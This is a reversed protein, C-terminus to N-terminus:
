RSALITGGILFLMLFPFAATQAYVVTQRLSPYHNAIWSDKLVSLGIMVSVAAYTIMFIRDALTPVASDVKPLALYLAIASLLATVQMGMIAEFREKTLFISFWTILLIFVLPVAVRLYFDVAERKVAWTQNFKYFTVVRKGGAAPDLTPIIDEDSGVYGDDLTWGDIGPVEGTSAAAVPQILFPRATSAPQFSISLRQTDFPYNDLEPSFTFTGAVKYLKVGAPFSSNAAGDHMEHWSVIRQGSGASRQANTFEIDGIGISADASALSLYFEAEFSQENADINDLSLLDISLTIVPAPQLTDGVRHYQVPALALAQRGTPRAIILTDDGSTRASTFWWDQWLGRHVSQGSTLASLRALITARLAPVDAGPPAAAIAEGILAIMDAYQAGRGIARRNRDDLIRPPGSAKTAVCSGDSWGKASTNPTDEFIWGEGRTRWIQQQLRENYVNPVGDRGLEYLDAKPGGGGMVDAIRKTRGYLVFVPMDVGAASLATLLQAGAGSQIALFLLDPKKQALDAVIPPVAAPDLASDTLTVRHDAVLTLPDAGSQLGDGLALSYDDDKLGVFAPRTFGRDRAFRKVVQLENGATSAMSYVTPLGEFLTNLSIESLVPVKAADLERGLAGFAARARSSNSLGVIAVLQPDALAQHLNDTTAEPVEYDDLVAIRLQHGGAANIRAAEATTFQKIAKVM